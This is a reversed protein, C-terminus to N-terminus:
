LTVPPSFFALAANNETNKLFKGILFSYFLGLLVNAPGALLRVLAIQVISSNAFAQWRSPNGCSHEAARVM